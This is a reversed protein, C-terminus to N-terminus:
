EDYAVEWDLEMRLKKLIKYLRTKVTNVNMKLISAIDSIKLDEFFRLIILTKDDPSLQDIADYLDIYERDEIPMDIEEANFPLVEKRKRLHSISTNILIRYFWSSIYDTQINKHAKLSKYIADQVIDLADERSKCYSFAVRYFKDQNNQIYDVLLNYTQRSMLAGKM